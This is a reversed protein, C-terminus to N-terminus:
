LPPTFRGDVATWGGDVFLVAGTVYSAADSALFVMPGAMERASAWRGLANKTAYANYWDPKSKIQATLPTEVIGPAICNVRVGAPGLESALGRAMQVLASKTGAYVSQGPEVTVSRISSFLIISGARKERMHRGAAQLVHFTGGLNLRLVRDFEEGTYDLLPKRVNIAPTCVVAHIQQHRAVIEQFASEVAGGGTIDLTLAEARGGTGRIGAATAEAAAGDRDACIVLAGAAALGQAGAQGIGSAAGAVFAVRGDLRFLSSFDDMLRNYRIL